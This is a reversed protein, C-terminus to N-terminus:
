GEETDSEGIEPDISEWGREQEGEARRVELPGARDRFQRIRIEEAHGDIFAEFEAHAAGYHRVQERIEDPSSGIAVMCGAMEAVLRTPRSWSALVKPGFITLNVCGPLAASPALVGHYGAARLAAGEAQCRAYDDDILADAAFESEEAREFTSYDVIRAADVRLACMPVHVLNL